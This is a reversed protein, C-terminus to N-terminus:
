ANTRTRGPNKLRCIDIKTVKSPIFGVGNKKWQIMVLYDMIVLYTKFVFLKIDRLLLLFIM